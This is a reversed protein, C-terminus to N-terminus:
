GERRLRAVFMGETGHKHPLLQLYGRPSLDRALAGPLLSAPSESRFDKRERLFDEVVGVTEELTFTCVSYVLIGGPRVAEACGRILRAQVAGLNAIDGPFRRWKLEPNRRLTGLGSCPADLLVVDVEGEVVERLKSADGARLEVNEVGLREVASRMAKLRKPNRDVAIIRCDKGGLVALHTSKGGPAACADVVVQGPRPSVAYGVLMSGEDQVVCLGKELWQLLAPYPVAVEVISEPFLASPRGQWGRSAIEELLEERSARLPNVRLTLTPIRNDATCLELAEEEGFRKIFYDVLWRPHSHVVELYAPLDEAGPWAVEELGQAVRRMVANVYGAGKALHRKALEVSENVAAHPPVRMELLQFVGLRLIDLVEPNLEKLPRDSFAAIVHDIRNRHRQVGYALEAVLARDRDDLRTGNLAYRILLGLYSGGAHVRRTIRYALDRAGSSPAEAKRKRVPTRKRKRDGEAM